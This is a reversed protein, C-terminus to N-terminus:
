SCIFRGEYAGPLICICVDMGTNGYINIHVHAAVNYVCVSM